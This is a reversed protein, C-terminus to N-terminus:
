EGDSVCDEYKFTMLYVVLLYITYTNDTHLQKRVQRLMVSYVLKLLLAKREKQREKKRERKPKIEEGGYLLVYGNV